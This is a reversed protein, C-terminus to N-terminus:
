SMLSSWISLKGWLPSKEWHQSCKKTLSFGRFLTKVEPCTSRILKRTWRFITQETKAGLLMHWHQKFTKNTHTHKHIKVVSSLGSYNPNHVSLEVWSEKMKFALCSWKDENGIWVQHLTKWESWRYVDCYIHLGVTLSNIQVVQTAEHLLKWLVFYFQGAILSKNPKICMHIFPQAKAAHSGAIHWAPQFEIVLYLILNRSKCKVNKHCLVTHGQNCKPEATTTCHDTSDGWPLPTGPNTFNLHEWSRRGCHLSM